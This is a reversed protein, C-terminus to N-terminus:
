LPLLYLRQRSWHQCTQDCHSSLWLCVCSPLYFAQIMNGTQNLVHCCLIINIKVNCFACCKCSFEASHLTQTFSLDKTTLNTGKVKCVLSTHMVDIKKEAGSHQQLWVKVSATNFAGKQLDIISQNFLWIKKISSHTCWTLRDYYKNSVKHVKNNLWM